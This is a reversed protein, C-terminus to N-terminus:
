ESIKPKEHMKDRWKIMTRIADNKGITKDLSMNGTTYWKKILKCFKETCLLM